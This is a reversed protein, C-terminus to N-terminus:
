RGGIEGFENELDYVSDKDALNFRHQLEDGSPLEYTITLIGWSHSIKVIESLAHLNSVDGFQDIISLNRTTLTVLKLGAFGNDVLVVSRIQEGGIAKLAGITMASREREDEKGANAFTQDILRDALGM